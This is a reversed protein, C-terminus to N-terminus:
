DTTWRCEYVLDESPNVVSWGILSGYPHHISYRSNMIRPPESRDVPYSVLSYTKYPRAAPFLMWVSIIDTKTQTVFPARATKPVTVLTEIEITVPEERPQQSLDYQYEYLTRKQGRVEVPQTIRSFVGQFSEKPQRLEVNPYEIASRFVIRGDGSYSVLLKLTIRDRVYVHGRRKLSAADPNWRRLDYIKSHSLVEVGEFSVATPQPKEQLKESIWNATPDIKALNLIDRIDPDGSSISDIIVAQMQSTRYLQYVQLPLLFFLVFAIAVYVYSPWDRWDILTSWVRRRSSHRLQRSLKTAM